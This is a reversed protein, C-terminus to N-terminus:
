GRPLLFRTKQEQGLYCLMELVRPSLESAWASRAVVQWTLEIYSHSNATCVLVDDGLYRRMAHGNELALAVCDEFVTIGVV